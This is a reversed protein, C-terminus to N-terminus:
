SITGYLLSEYIEEQLHSWLVLTYRRVDVDQGGQGQGRISRGAIVLEVEWGVRGRGDSWGRGLGGKGQDVKRTSDMISSASTDFHNDFDSVRGDRGGRPLHSGARRHLYRSPERNM